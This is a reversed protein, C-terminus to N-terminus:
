YTATPLSRSPKVLLAVFVVAGVLVDLAEIMGWAIRKASTSLREAHDADHRQM